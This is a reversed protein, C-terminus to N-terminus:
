TKEVAPNRTLGFVGNYRRSTLGSHCPSYEARLFEAICAAAQGPNTFLAMHPGDIEAVQTQPAIALVEEICTRPITEDHSSALYLLRARCEGLLARVDVGLAARARTALVRAKVRRWTRGKAKRLEATGYGPILFRLRRLARITAVLPTGLAQRYRVMGPRPPTVFSACLIIGTVQSPRRSAVMLALPGGFSWGLIVFEELSEVAREAVPVLDEYTNPGSPPYTVVVPTIWSPLRSLLPGLFIETGDLGPLLVLTTRTVTEFEGVTARARDRHQDM